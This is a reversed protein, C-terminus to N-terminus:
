FNFIAADLSWAGPGVLAIAIYGLLLPFSDDYYYPEEKHSPLRLDVWYAVAMNLIGGLAAVRTFIGFILCFPAVLEAFMALYFSVVPSFGLVAYFDNADQKRNAFKTMGWPLMTLAIVMRLFFAAAAYSLEGTMFTNFFSM